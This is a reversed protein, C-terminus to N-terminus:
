RRHESSSPPPRLPPPVPVLLFLPLRRLCSHFPTSAVARAWRTAQPTHSPPPPPVEFKTDWEIGKTSGAASASTFFVAEYVSRELPSLETWVVQETSMLHIYNSANGVGLLWRNTRQARQYLAMNRGRAAARQTLNESVSFMEKAFIEFLPGACPHGCMAAPRSLM